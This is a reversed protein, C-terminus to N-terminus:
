RGANENFANSGLQGFEIEIGLQELAGTHQLLQPKVFTIQPRAVSDQHLGIHIRGDSLVAYAHQWTDGVSVQSFGLRSYFQLSAAIDSTAVSFELFRGLM